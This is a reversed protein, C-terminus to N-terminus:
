GTESANGGHNKKARKTDLTKHEDMEEFIALLYGAYAFIAANHGNQNSHRTSRYIHEANGQKAYGGFAIELAQAFKTKGNNGDIKDKLVRFIKEPHDGRLCYGAYIHAINREEEVPFLRTVFELWDNRLKASVDNETSFYDYGVTKTILVDKSYPKLKGDVLDVYGNNCGIKLPDKDCRQLFTANYVECKFCSIISTIHSNTTLLSKAFNETELCRKYKYAKKSDPDVKSLLDLFIRIREDWIPNMHKVMFQRVIECHESIPQWGDRFMWVTTGDYVFMGDSLKRLLQAMSLHSPSKVAEQLEGDLHEGMLDMDADDSADEEVEVANKIHYKENFEMSVLMPKIVLPVDFNTDETVYAQCEELLETAVTAFSESLGTREFADPSWSQPKRLQLRLKSVGLILSPEPSCWRLMFSVNRLWSRDHRHDSIPLDSAAVRIFAVSVLTSM